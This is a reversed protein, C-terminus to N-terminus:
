YREADSCSRILRINVSSGASRMVVSAIAGWGQSACASIGGGATVTPASPVSAAARSQLVNQGSASLRVALAPAAPAPTPRGVIPERPDSSDYSMPAYWARKLLSSWCTIRAPKAPKRNASLTAPAASPSCTNELSGQAPPSASIRRIPLEPGVEQSPRTPSLCRRSAVATTVQCYQRFPRFLNVGEDPATQDVSTEFALRTRMTTRAVHTHGHIRISKCVLEPPTQRDRPKAAGGETPGSGGKLGHLLLLVTLQLITCWCRM